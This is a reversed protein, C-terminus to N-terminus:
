EIYGLFHKMGSNKRLVSRQLIPLKGIMRVGFGRIVKAPWIQPAFMRTLGDTLRIVHERDPKRQDEYDILLQSFLQKSFKLEKLLQVLAQVDRLGLNFGQAAVPHVAQAANGLLVANGQTLKESVTLSLPYASRQGVEKFMGLRYGFAKQLARLFSQDNMQLYHEVNSDAQTWILACCDDQIPLVALPGHETFREYAINQHSKQPRVNAIIASQHYKKRQVSIELLERVKSNAGDAGILLATQITLTQNNQDIDISYGEVNEELNVLSSSSMITLNKQQSVKQSLVEILHHNPVMYGIPSANFESADIRAGGFNGQESIDLREIQTAQSEISEWIGSHTFAQQSSTTLGTTRLDLINAQLPSTQSQEILLVERDSDALAVAMSMGVLGGGIITIDFTTQIYTM